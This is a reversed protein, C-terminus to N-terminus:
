ATFSLNYYSYEERCWSDFEQEQLARKRQKYIKRLKRKSLPEEETNEARRVTHEVTVVLNDQKSFIVTYRDVIKGYHEYLLAKFLGRGAAYIQGQFLTQAVKFNSVQRTAMRDMAHNSLQFIRNM